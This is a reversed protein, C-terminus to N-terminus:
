SFNKCYSCERCIKINSGFVMMLTEVFSKPTKQGPDHLVIKEPAITILMSLVWDEGSSASLFLEDNLKDSYYRIEKYREDAVHYFGNKNTVHVLRYQSDQLSVFYRLLEIFSEKEKEVAYNEIGQEIMRELADKYCFLRFDAIGKVSLFSKEEMLQLIEPLLANSVDLNRKALDESLACIKENDLGHSFGYFRRHYIDKITKGEYFSRIHQALLEGATRPTFIVNGSRTKEKSSNSDENQYLNEFFANAQKENEFSVWPM